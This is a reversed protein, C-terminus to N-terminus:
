QIIRKVRTVVEGVSRHVDSLLSASTIGDMGDLKYGGDGSTALVVLNDKRKMEVFERVVRPAEGVEWTHIIVIATWEDQNIEVLSGIDIVKLHVSMPRLERVVGNVVSDKFESGQTAILVRSELSPDNVLFERAVDMSYQIKYWTMLAVLILIIAALWRM